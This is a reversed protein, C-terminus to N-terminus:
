MPTPRVPPLKRKPAATPRPTGCEPCVGTTNFALDYGCAPCKGTDRRDDAVGRRHLQIWGYAALAFFAAALVFWGYNLAAISAGVAAFRGAFLLNEPAFLSAM